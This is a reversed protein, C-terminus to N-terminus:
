STAARGCQGPRQSRPCPVVRVAANGDSVTTASSNFYLAYTERSSLPVELTIAPGATVAIGYKIFADEGAPPPTRWRNRGLLISSKPLLIRGLVMRQALDHAGPDPVGIQQGCTLTAHRSAPRVGFAVPIAVLGCLVAAVSLSAGRLGVSSSRIDQRAVRRAVFPSIANM